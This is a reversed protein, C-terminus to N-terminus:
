SEQQKHEASKRVVRPERPPDDSKEPNSYTNKFVYFVYGSFALLSVTFLLVPVSPLMSTLTLAGGAQAGQAGQAGQAVKALYESEKARAVATTAGAAADLAKYTGTVTSAASTAAQTGKKGAFEGLIQHTTSFTKSPPLAGKIGVGAALATEQAAQAAALATEKTAQAAALATKQTAQAAEMIQPKAAQIVQVGNSALTAGAAAVKAGAIATQLPVTAASFVQNVASQDGNDSIKKVPGLATFSYYNKFLYSVGPIRAFGVEYVTKTDFLLNFIDYIGQIMVIPIGIIIIFLFLYFFGGEYDGIIFKNIPFTVFLLTTLAYAIFLWPRQIDKPSEKISPDNFMGAGIGLPGFYPVGIGYKKVLESEGCVQAIDYFYWFFTLPIFFALFKPPIFKLFYVISSSLIKLGATLPSRLLLHDIGFMGTLPFITIFMFLNYSFQSGKWYSGQTTSADIM